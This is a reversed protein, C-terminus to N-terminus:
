DLRRRGPQLLLLALVILAPYGLGIREVDRSALGFVGLVAIWSMVFSKKLPVLAAVLLFVLPVLSLLLPALGLVAVDIAGLVGLLIAFAAFVEWHQRAVITWSQADTRSRSPMSSSM